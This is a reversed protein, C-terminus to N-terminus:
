RRLRGLGTPPAADCFTVKAFGVNEKQPETPSGPFFHRSDSWALYATGNHVDLGMYEGYQNPNYETNDVSNENTYSIASNNFEGSPQSAKVNTWTQGCDTSRAVYYDVAHNTPDNRADHWAVHIAGTGRDVVLFPHFQISTDPDPTDNVRVAPGWTGGGDTSRMVWIDATGVGNADADDTFTVYLYGDCAGGSNDVDIAGFPNLGRQDQPGYEANVGFSVPDTIDRVHVLSSWSAGGDTSRTYYMNEDTCFTGCTLNDFVLHVTGNDEVAMECGLDLGSGVNPINVENWNVGGDTSYRILENNNRDWCAYHRGFYPSTPHNDIIYFNKDEITGPTTYSNKLVGHPTWTAGGDTSRAVVIAYGYLNPNSNWCISMYNAFVNNSDDWYLAPDSGFEIGSACSLGYLSGRPACTYGWSVGGNSSFFIAQTGYSCTALDGMNGWTNAMSVIQSANLPNVVVQIEGDYDDPAPSYDYASNRNTDVTSKTRAVPSDREISETGSTADSHSLGIVPGFHLSLWRQHLQNTIRPVVVEYHRLLMDIKLMDQPSLPLFSLLEDYGGLSPDRSEREALRRGRWQLYFPDAVVARYVEIRKELSWSRYEELTGAMEWPPTGPPNQATAPAALLATLAISLLAIRRMAIREKLFPAASV